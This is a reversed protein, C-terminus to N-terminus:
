LESVTAVYFRDTSFGYPKITQDSDLIFFKFVEKSFYPIRKLLIIIKGDLDFVLMGPFPLIKPIQTLQYECLPYYYYIM